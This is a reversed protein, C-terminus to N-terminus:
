NTKIFNEIEPWRKGLEMLGHVTNHCRGCLRRFDQNRLLYYSPHKSKHHNGHIEHLYRGNKNCLICITGFIRRCEERQKKERKKADLYHLIMNRKPRNEKKWYNKIRAWQRHNALIKARYVPDLKYREKNL